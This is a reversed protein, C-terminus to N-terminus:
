AVEIDQDGVTVRVVEDLTTIGDLALAIGNERLTRMGELRAQESIEYEQASKLILEKIKPTLMLVEM